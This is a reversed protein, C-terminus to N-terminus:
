EGGLQRDGITDLAALHDAFYKGDSLGLVWALAHLAGSEFSLTPEILHFEDRRGDRLFQITLAVQERARLIETLTPVARLM